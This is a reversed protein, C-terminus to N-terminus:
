TQSLFTDFSQKDIASFSSYRPWQSSCMSAIVRPDSETLMEIDIQVKEMDFSAMENENNLSLLKDTTSGLILQSLTQKRYLELSLVEFVNSIHDMLHLPFNHHSTNLKFLCDDTRNSESNENNISIELVVTSHHNTMDELLKSLKKQIESLDSLLRRLGTMMKEHQLVDHSISQNIDHLTLYPNVSVFSSSIIRDQKSRRLGHNKWHNTSNDVVLPFPLTGKEKDELKRCMATEMIPLRSRINSISQIVSEMEDDLPIWDDQVIERFSQFIHWYRKEIKKVRQDFRSKKLELDRKKKEEEIENKRRKETEINTTTSNNAKVRTGLMFQEFAIQMAEPDDEMM